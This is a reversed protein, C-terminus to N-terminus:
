ATVSAAKSDPELWITNWTLVVKEVVEEEAKKQCGFFLFTILVIILLYTIKKM